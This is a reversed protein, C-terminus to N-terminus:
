RPWEQLNNKDLDTTPDLLAYRTIRFLFHELFFVTRPKLKARTSFRPAPGSAASTARKSGPAGYGQATLDAFAM